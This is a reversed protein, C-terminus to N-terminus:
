CGVGRGKGACLNRNLLRSQVSEGVKLEFKQSKGGDQCVEKINGRNRGRIESRRVVVEPTKSSWSQFKL